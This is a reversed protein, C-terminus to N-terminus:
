NIFFLVIIFKKKTKAYNINCVNSKYKYNLFM